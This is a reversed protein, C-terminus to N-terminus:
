IDINIISSPNRCEPRPWGKVGKPIFTVGSNEKCKIKFKEVYEAHSVGNLYIKGFFLVVFVILFAINWNEVFLEYLLKTLASRESESCNVENM